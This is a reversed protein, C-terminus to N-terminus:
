VRYRVEGRCVLWDESRVDGAQVALQDWEGDPKAGRTVCTADDITATEVWECVHDVRADRIRGCGHREARSREPGESCLRRPVSCSVVIPVGRRVSWRSRWASAAASNARRLVSTSGGGRVGGGRVGCGQGGRVSVSVVLVASRRWTSVCKLLQLQQRPPIGIAFRSACVLDGTLRVGLKRRQYLHGRGRIEFPIRLQQRHEPVSPAVCCQWVSTGRGQRVSVRDRRHVKDANWSTVQPVDSFGAREPCSGPAARNRHLWSRAGRDARLQIETGRDGLGHLEIHGACLWGV